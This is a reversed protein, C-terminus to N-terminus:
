FVTFCPSPLKWNASQQYTDELLIINRMTMHLFARAYVKRRQGKKAYVQYMM